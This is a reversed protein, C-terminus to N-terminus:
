TASGTTAAVGRHIDDFIVHEAAVFHQGRAPGTLEHLAQSVAASGATSGLWFQDIAAFPSRAAHGALPDNRVYRLVRAREAISAVADERPADERYLAFVKTSSTRATDVIVREAVAFRQLSSWDPFRQLDDRVTKLDADVPPDPFVIADDYWGEVFWHWAAPQAIHNQVYRKLSRRLNAASAVLPAHVRLLHDLAQECSLGPKAKALIIYKTLSLTSMRPSTRVALQTM